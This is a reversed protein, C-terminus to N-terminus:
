RGALKVAGIRLEDKLFEERTGYFIHKGIHLIHTAYKLAAEMDHSIMIVTVGDRNLAEVMSYMESTAKPDLGSVPEDLLLLQDMACLARALLVRQRQGGSLESFCSDKLEEIGMRKLNHMALEKDAKGFFPKFGKGHCGSLVIEWVSAPFGKQAETQQPLYGIKTKDLGDGFNVSGSLEEKLGLLTKMLTTKGSGNEGVIYLYDGSNVTFSIGKAVIGTDYGLTLDRVTILAM